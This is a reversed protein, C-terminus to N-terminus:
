FGPPTQQYIGLKNELQRGLACLPGEQFLNGILSVNYPVRTALASPDTEGTGRPPSQIFGARLTLCPHGTYNTITLLNAAFNPTILADVGDFVEDMAHMVQRRLRDMQIYDVASLFRVQRWSNPWANDGQWVMLDDRGSLTLEEFAAASEAVLTPYLAGYPLEPLRIKKVKVGLALMARLAARDQERNGDGEFWQPDYGITMTEPRISHDYAFGMEISGADTSDVGNIAALVLATDEATRCIAGVKDLSWCLAMAGSRSVRGFTPRLGTTGCRHSPSVISGLTETGISFSMLGASTAAASGASSGSSGEALNWPNRTKGGFWVDGYAIAGCTTKGLLVAGADRLKGVISADTKAIRDKYPAAGWSTKIDKTDFLDKLGYPMGHLAGRDQGNALETDAQKAQQMALEATITVFCELKAAHKTIRDLYIGTLKQSSLGDNRMWHGLQGISAFALKNINAPRSRTVSAPNQLNQQAAFSKGPLRPEFVQAPALANPLNQARVQAVAQLQNEFGALVQEREADSYTIPVMKEAAEIIKPNLGTESVAPEQAVSKSGVLTASLAGAALLNRRTPHLNSKDRM